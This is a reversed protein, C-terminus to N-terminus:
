RDAASRTWSLADLMLASILWGALGLLFPLWYVVSRNVLTRM